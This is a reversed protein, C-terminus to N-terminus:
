PFYTLYTKQNSVIVRYQENEKPTLVVYPSDTSISVWTEGGDESMQWYYSYTGNQSPMNELAYLYLGQEEDIGYRKLKLTQSDSEDWSMSGENSSVDIGLDSETSKSLAYTEVKDTLTNTLDDLSKRVDSFGSEIFANEEAKLQEKQRMFVIPWCLLNLVNIIFLVVLVIGLVLEHGWKKGIFRPTTSQVVKDATIENESLVSKETEKIDSQTGTTVTDSPLHVEIHEAVPEIACLDWFGNGSTLKSQEKGCVPCIAAINGPIKNGCWECFM